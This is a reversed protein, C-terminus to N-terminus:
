PCSGSINLAQDQAVVRVLVVEGIGPDPPMWSTCLSPGALAEFSSVAEFPTLDPVGPCLSPSCNGAEDCTQCPTPASPVLRATQIEFHLPDIEPCDHCDPGQDFCFTLLLIAIASM